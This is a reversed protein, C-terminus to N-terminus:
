ELPPPLTKRLVLNSFLQLLRRLEARTEANPFALFRREAEEVKERWLDEFVDDMAESYPLEIGFGQSVM